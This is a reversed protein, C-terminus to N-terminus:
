PNYEDTYTTNWLKQWLLTGNQNYKFLVIDFNSFDFLYHGAAVISGDQTEFGSELSDGFCGRLWLLKGNGNLKAIMGGNYVSGLIVLGGMGLLLHQIVFLMLDLATVLNSGGCCLGTRIWSPWWVTAILATLCTFILC